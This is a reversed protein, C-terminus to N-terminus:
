TIWNDMMSIRVYVLQKGGGREKPIIYPILTDLFYGLVVELIEYSKGSLCIEITDAMGLDIM